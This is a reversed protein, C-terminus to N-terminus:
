KPKVPVLGLLLMMMDMKHNNGICGYNAPEKQKERSTGNVSNLNLMESIKYVIKGAWRKV